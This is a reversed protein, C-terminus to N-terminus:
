IGAMDQVYYPTRFDRFYMSDRYKFIKAHKQLCHDISAPASFFRRKRLAIDIRLICEM